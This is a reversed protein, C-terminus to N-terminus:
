RDANKAENAQLRAGELYAQLDAIAQEVAKHRWVSPSHDLARLLLQTLRQAAEEPNCGECWMEPFDRHHIHTMPTPECANEDRSVILHETNTLM